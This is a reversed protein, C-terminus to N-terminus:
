LPTKKVSFHQNSDAAPNDFKEVYVLIPFIYGTLM